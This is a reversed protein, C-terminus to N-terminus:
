TSDISKYRLSSRYKPLMCPLANEGLACPEWVARWSRAFRRDLSIPAVDEPAASCSITWCVTSAQWDLITLTAAVRALKYQRAPSKASMTCDIEDLASCM